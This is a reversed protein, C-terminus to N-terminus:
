SYPRDLVSRIADLQEQGPGGPPMLPVLRLALRTLARYAEVLEPDYAVAALNVAVADADGRAVPGTLAKAPDNSLLNDVAGRLLRLVMGRASERDIGAGQLVGLAAAALVVPFNSAMVAAAHYQPKVGAPIVIAHAGLAKALDRGALQAEADGDIGVWAGRLQAAAGRSGALPVLPHFTGASHGKVRLRQLAPGPDANGSAYLVVARRALPAKAITDIVDMLANDPVAVLVVDAGGITDATLSADRGALGVIESGAAQLAAAM